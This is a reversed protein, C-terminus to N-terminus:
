KALGFKSLVNNVQTNVEPSAAPTTPAPASALAPRTAPAQTPTPAPAQTRAFPAPASTPATEEDSEAAGANYLPQWGKAYFEGKRELYQGFLFEQGAQKSVISYYDYKKQATRHTLVLDTEGNPGVEPLSGFFAMKKVFDVQSEATETITFTKSGIKLDFKIEM